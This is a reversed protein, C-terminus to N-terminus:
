PKGSANPPPTDATLPLVASSGAPTKQLDSVSTAPSARLDPNTVTLKLPSQLPTLPPSPAPSPEHEAPPTVTVSPQAIYFKPSKPSAGFLHPPPNVRAPRPPPLPSPPTLPGTAHSQLPATASYPSWPHPSSPSALYQLPLSGHWSARIAASSSPWSSPTTVISGQSGGRRRRTHALESSVPQSVSGVSNRRGGNLSQAHGHSHNSVHGHSSNSSPGPLLTVRPQASPPSMLRGGHSSHSHSSQSALDIPNHLDGEPPIVEDAASFTNAVPSKLSPRSRVPSSPQPQPTASSTTRGSPNVPEPSFNVIPLPPLLLPASARSNASSSDRSYSPRDSSRKPRPIASPLQLPRAKYNTPARVGDEFSFQSGTSDDAGKEQLRSATVRRWGPFNEADSRYAFDWKHRRKYLLFFVWGVICTFAFGGIAAGVAVAVFKKPGNRGDADPDSPATPGSVFSTITITTAEVATANSPAPTQALRISM